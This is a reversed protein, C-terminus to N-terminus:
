IRISSSTTNGPILEYYLLNVICPLYSNHAGTLNHIQIDFSIVTVYSGIFKVSIVVTTAYISLLFGMIM